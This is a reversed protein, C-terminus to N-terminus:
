GQNEDPYLLRETFLDLIQITMEHPLFCDLTIRQKGGTYAGSLISLHNLSAPYFTLVAIGRGNGYFENRSDFQIEDSSLRWEMELCGDFDASIEAKPLHTLRTYDLLFWAWSQLSQFIINPNEDEDLDEEREVLYSHYASVCQELGNIMLIQMIESHTQAEFIEQRLPERSFWTSELFGSTWEDFSAPLKQASLVILRDSFEEQQMTGAAYHFGARDAMLISGSIDSTLDIKYEDIAPPTFDDTISRYESPTIQLHKDVQDLIDM